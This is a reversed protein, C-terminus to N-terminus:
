IKAITFYNLKWLEEKVKLYEKLTFPFAMTHCMGQKCEIADLM